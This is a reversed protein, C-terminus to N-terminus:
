DPREPRGSPFGVHWIFNILGCWSQDQVDVLQAHGITLPCHNVTHAQLNMGPLDEAQEARVTCPFRARQAGNFPQEPRLRPLQQHVADINLPLRQVGFGPESYL